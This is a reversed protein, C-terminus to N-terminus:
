NPNKVREGPLLTHSYFGLDGFVVCRGTRNGDPWGRVPQLAFYEVHKSDLKFPMRVHLTNQQGIAPLAMRQAFVVADNLLVVLPNLDVQPNFAALSRDSWSGRGSGQDQRFCFM